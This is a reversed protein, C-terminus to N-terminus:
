HFKKYNQTQDENMPTPNGCFSNGHKKIYDEGGETLKNSFRNNVLTLGWYGKKELTWNIFDTTTLGCKKCKYYTKHTWVLEKHPRFM